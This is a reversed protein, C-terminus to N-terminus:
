ASQYPLRKYHPHLTPHLVLPHLQMCQLPETQLPPHSRDSSSSESSAGKTHRAMHFLFTLALSELSRAGVRTIKLMMGITEVLSITCVVLPTIRVKGGETGEVKWDCAGTALITTEGGDHGLFFHTVRANLRTRWNGEIDDIIAVDPFIVTTLWGLM